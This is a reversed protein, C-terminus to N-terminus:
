FTPTNTRAARNPYTPLMSIEMWMPSAHANFLSMFISIKIREDHLFENETVKEITVIRGDTPANVLGHLDGKYTRDPSRYFNLTMAFSLVSIFFFITTFYTDTLFIFNILNIFLLVAFIRALPTKGEKHIQFYKGM